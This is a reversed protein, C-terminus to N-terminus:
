RRLEKREHIAAIQIGIRRKRGGKDGLGDHPELAFEANAEHLPYDV